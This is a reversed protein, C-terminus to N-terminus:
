GSTIQAIVIKGWSLDNRRKGMSTDGALSTLLSRTQMQQYHSVIRWGISETGRATPVYHSTVEPKAGDNNEEM